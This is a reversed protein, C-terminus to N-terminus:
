GRDSGRAGCCHERVIRLMNAESEVATQLRRANGNVLNDLSTNLTGISSIGLWAMTACLAIIVAFTVGLKLKITARM